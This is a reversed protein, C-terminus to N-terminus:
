VSYWMASLNAFLLWPAAQRGSEVSVCLAGIHHIVNTACEIHQATLRWTYTCMAVHLFYGNTGCADNLHTNISAMATAQAQDRRKLAAKYNILQWPSLRAITSVCVLVCVCLTLRLLWSRWQLNVCHKCVYVHMCTLVVKNSLAGTDCCSTVFTLGWSHIM